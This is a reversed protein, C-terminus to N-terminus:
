YRISAVMNARIYFILCAKESIKPFKRVIISFTPVVQPFHESFKRFHKSIKPFFEEVRKSGSDVTFVHLAIIVKKQPRFGITHGNM